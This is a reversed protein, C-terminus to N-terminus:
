LREGSASVMVSVQELRSRAEERIEADLQSWSADLDARATALAEVVIERGRAWGKQYAEALVSFDDSAAQAALSQGAEDYSRRLRRAYAGFSVVWGLEAVLARASRPAPSLRWGTALIAATGALGAARDTRTLKNSSISRVLEYGQLAMIWPFRSIGSTTHPNRMTRIAAATYALTVVGAVGLAARPSMDQMHEVRRASWLSAVLAGLIPGATAWLPVAERQSGMPQALWGIDMLFAMPTADFVWRTSSGEAPLEVVRDGLWISRSPFPRASAQPGAIGVPVAGVPGVQDLERALLRAQSGSLLVTGAGPELEFSVLGVLEPRQNHRAQWSVLVDGLYSARDRAAEAVAAKVTGAFNRRLSGPVSLEVLACARQLVDVAGEHEVVLNHLGALEAHQSRAELEKAHAEDLRSKRRRALVRLGWGGGTGMIQWSFQELRLRHGRAARVAIAVAANGAPVVVGGLGLRAGAEVALAVGPIVADESTDADDAAALCWLALDAADLVMRIGLAFRRHRALWVSKALDTAASIGAVARWGPTRAAGRPSLLQHFRSGLGDALTLIVRADAVPDWPSWDPTKGPSAIQQM